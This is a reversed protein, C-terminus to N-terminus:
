FGVPPSGGGGGSWFSWRPFFVFNVIPFTKGPWKQSVFKKTGLGRVGEGRGASLLRGGGGGVSLLFM